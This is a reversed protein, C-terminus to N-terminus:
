SQVTISSWGYFGSNPLPPFQYHSEIQAWGSVHLYSDLHSCINVSLNSQEGRATMGCWTGEIHTKGSPNRLAWIRPFLPPIKWWLCRFSSLSDFSEGRGRKIISILNAMKWLESVSVCVYFGAERFGVDLSAVSALAERLQQGWCSSNLFIRGRFIM